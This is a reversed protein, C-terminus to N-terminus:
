YHVYRHDEVLKLCLLYSKESELQQILDLHPKIKGLFAEAAAQHLPFKEKLETYQEKIVTLRMSFQEVEKLTTQIKTPTESSVLSM